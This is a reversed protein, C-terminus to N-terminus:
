TLCLIVVPVDRGMFVSSLVLERIDSLTEGREGEVAVMVETTEPALNQLEGILEEITM